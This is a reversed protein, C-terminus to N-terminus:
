ARLPGVKRIMSDEESGARSSRRGLRMHSARGGAKPGQRLLGTGFEPSVELLHRLAQPHRPDLAGGKADRGQVARLRADNRRRIVDPLKRLLIITAAGM